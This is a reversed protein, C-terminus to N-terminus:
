TCSRGTWEETSCMSVKMGVSGMSEKCCCVLCVLLSGVPECDVICGNGRGSRVSLIDYLM